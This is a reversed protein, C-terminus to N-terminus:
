STTELRETKQAAFLQDLTYKSGCEPCRSEYLGTMNYSCKPCFLVDGAARRIREAREAPTERWILVSFALWALIAVFGGVFVEVDKAQTLQGPVFGAVVCAVSLLLTLFTRKNSWPISRYWLAIWYLIVLLTILVNSYTCAKVFRLGFWDDLLITALVYLCLALPFMIIALLIRALLATM